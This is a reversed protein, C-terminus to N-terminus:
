VRSCTGLDDGPLARFVGIRIWEIMPLHGTLADWLQSASPIAHGWDQVESTLGWRTYEHVASALQESIQRRTMGGHKADAEVLAVIPKNTLAARLLERM